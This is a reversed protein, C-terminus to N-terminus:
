AGCSFSSSSAAAHERKPPAPEHFRSAGSWSIAAARRTNHRSNKKVPSLHPISRIRSDHDVYNSPRELGDFGLQTYPLM